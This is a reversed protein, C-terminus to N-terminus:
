GERRPNTPAERTGSGRSGSEDQPLRFRFAVKPDPRLRVGSCLREWRSGGGDLSELIAGDFRNGRAKETDIPPSSKFEAFTTYEDHIWYGDPSPYWFSRIVHDTM